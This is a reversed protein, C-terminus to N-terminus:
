NNITKDLRNDPKVEEQRAPIEQYFGLKLDTDPFNLKIALNIDYTCVYEALYLQSLYILYNYYADGGSKSIVGEKSINSISSDIGKGSLIVQDAREDNKIVSEIFEKYKTPIEKFEWEEVGHESRFKWTAFLKGQNKGEGSMLTTIKELYLNILKTLLGEHYATEESIDLGDYKKIISKDAAKREANQKIINQLKEEKKEVWSHPIIIHLKASLSNKFFSNIYKPNLNSGIIWEKLGYYYTPYSYVEEGFSGNTKYNIANAFKFPDSEIFRDFVQMEAINPNLWNGVMVKNFLADEIFTQHNIEASSGLRAKNVSVHELARVPMRGNVRRSKYWLYRTFIGEMYYFDRIAKILYSMYDDKAGSRTWSDLWNQIKKDEVLERIKKNEELKERYLVTGKGILFRIQKELLEPLLRNKGVNERIELPLNNHDKGYPIVSYPGVRFTYNDYFLLGLQNNNTNNLLDEISSTWASESTIQFTYVGEGSDVIGQNGYRKIDTM